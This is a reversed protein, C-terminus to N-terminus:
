NMLEKKPKFEGCGAHEKTPPWLGVTAASHNGEPSMNIGCVILQPARIRCLGSGDDKIGPEITFKWFFRCNRCEDM